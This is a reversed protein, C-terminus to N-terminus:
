LNEMGELREDHLWNLFQDLSEEKPWTSGVEQLFQDYDAIPEVGQELALQRWDAGPQAIAKGNRAAKAPKEPRTRHMKSM